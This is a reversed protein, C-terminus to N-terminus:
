ATLDNNDATPLEIGLKEILSLLNTQIQMMDEETLKDFMVVNSKDFEKPKADLDVKSTLAVTAMPDTSDGNYISFSSSIESKKDSIKNNKISFVIKMTTKNGSVDTDTGYLTGSVSNKDIKVSMIDEKNALDKIFINTEEDKSEITAKGDENSMEFYSISGSIIDSHLIIKMDSRDDETTSSSLINKLDDKTVEQGSIKSLIGPVKEDEILAKRIADFLNKQEEKDFNYIAEFYLGSDTKLSKEIKNYNINNKITDKVLTLIYRIDDIDVDSREYISSLDNENLKIGVVKSYLDKSLLYIMDKENYITASIIDKDNSKVNAELYAKKEKINEAGYYDINLNIKPENLTFLINGEGISFDKSSYVNKYSKLNNDLKTYMIDITKSFINKPSMVVFYYSCGLGVVILLVVILVIPWIRKDKKIMFDNNNSDSTNSNITQSNADSIPKFLDNDSIGTGNNNIHESAVKIPDVDITAAPIDEVNQSENNIIDEEKEPLNIESSNVNNSTNISEINTIPENSVVKNSTQVDSPIDIIETNENNYEENKVENSEM